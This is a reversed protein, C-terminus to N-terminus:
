KCYDTNGKLLGSLSSGCLQNQVDLTQSTKTQISQLHQETQHVFTVMRWLLFGAIALAAVFLLGFFTVWFNLIKIQRVLQKLLLEDTNM